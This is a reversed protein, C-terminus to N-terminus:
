QRTADPMTGAALDARVRAIDWLRVEANKKSSPGSANGCGAALTNGDPSFAVSWVTAPTGLDVSRGTEPDWIKVAGFSYDDESGWGGSGAAILCGDPSLAVAYVADEFDTQVAIQEKKEVSWIRVTKDDSCTVLREGDPSFVMHRVFDRHRGLHTVSRTEMDVLAVIPTGLTMDEAPRFHVALLSGDPSWAIGGPTDDGITIPPLLEGTNLDWLRIDDGMGLTALIAGSPSVAPERDKRKHLGRIVLKRNGSEADWFNLSWNGTVITKGDPLFALSNIEGAVVSVIETWNTTSWTKLGGDRSGAALRTGDPSFAVAYVADSFGTLIRDPPSERVLAERTVRRGCESIGMAAVAGILVVSVLAQLKEKKEKSLVIKGGVMIRDRYLEFVGLIIFYLLGAFMVRHPDALWQDGGPFPLNATYEGTM